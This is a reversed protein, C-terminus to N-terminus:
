NSISTLTSGDIAEGGIVEGEEDTEFENDEYDTISNERDLKSTGEEDDSNAQSFIFFNMALM